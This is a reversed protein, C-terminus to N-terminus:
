NQPEEDEYPHPHFQVEKFPNEHSLVRGVYGIVELACGSIMAISFGLFRRSITGQIIFLLTSLGFLATFLANAPLSPIYAWYSLDLDCGPKDLSCQERWNKYEEYQSARPVLDLGRAIMDPTLIAM